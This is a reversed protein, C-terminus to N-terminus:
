EAVKLWHILGKFKRREVLGKAELRVLKQKACSYSISISGETAKSNMADAVEQSTMANNGLVDLPTLEDDPNIGSKRAKEATIM